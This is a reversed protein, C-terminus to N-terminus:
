LFPNHEEIKPETYYYYGNKKTIRESGINLCKTWEPNFNKPKHFEGTSIHIKPDKYLGNMYFGYIPMATATGQGAGTWKWRISREEAGVWVGTVLNPTLGVFWGDSNNQTTGTKGAMPYIIGGYPNERRLSMGTGGNIVGELMKLMAYAVNEHLVEKQTTKSEYIINGKRDEVRLITKPTKFVGNAAFISYAATIEYLSVDMTGLVMPPTIQEPPLDIDMEKLLKAMNVCGAKTGIKSMVAVTTPGGSTYALGDALTPAAIGDPCWNGVCYGGESFTTCPNVLGMSMASSYLFPKITSGIQRKAQRVHDYAFHRIDAGGVWAKVHGTQPEISILGAHLFSKYYLISDNPTMITDIEGRWSFVRMKTPQVFTKLIDEESMGKEKLLKYRRSHIRAQNIRFHFVSANVGQYPYYKSSHLHRNFEPQINKLHTAVAKEAHKQMNVNLTTYVKLTDEYQNWPEGDPRLYRYSGDANKQNFLADLEKRLAERYYPAMGLNHPSISLPYLITKEDDAFFISVTPGNQNQFFSSNFIKSCTLVIFYAFLLSVVSLQLIQILHKQKKM